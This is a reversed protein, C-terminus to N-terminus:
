KTTGKTNLFNKKLRATGLRLTYGKSTVDDIMVEYVNGRIEAKFSEGREISGGGALQLLGRDGLVLSGLPQFQQSVIALAKDDPLLQSAMPTLPANALDKTPVPDAKKRRRAEFPSALDSFKAEPQDVNDLSDNMRDLLVGRKEPTTIVQADLLQSALMLM